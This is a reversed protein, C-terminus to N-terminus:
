RVDVIELDFELTEGALRHNFDIRVTESDAHVVEGVAGQQTQIQMGEQPTEGGLMEQFEEAGFEQINDETAEGFGKAPPVTITAEENEEMGILGEELGELIEGQGVEVTIPGYEREPATETLGIEDAVAERTTDFVQGGPVKATYEITVSDGTSITM